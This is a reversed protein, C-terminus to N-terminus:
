KPVPKWGFHKEILELVADIMVQRDSVDQSCFDWTANRRSPTMGAGADVTGLRLELEGLEDTFAETSRIRNWFEEVPVGPVDFKTKTSRSEERTSLEFLITCTMPTKEDM